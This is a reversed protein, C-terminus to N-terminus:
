DSRTQGRAALSQKLVERLDAVGGDRELREYVCQWAAAYSRPTMDRMEKLRALQSEDPVGPHLWGAKLAAAARESYHSGDPQAYCQALGEDMWIPLGRCHTNLIAHVTEHRVSSALEASDCLFLYPVGDRLLFIGHRGATDSWSIAPIFSRVGLFYDRRSSYILVRLPGAVPPLGLEDSLQRQVASIHGAIEKLRADTFSADAVFDISGITRIESARDAALGPPSLCLQLAAALLLLRLQLPM